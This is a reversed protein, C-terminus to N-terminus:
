EQVAKRAEEIIAPPTKGLRTLMATIQDATRPDIAMGTTKADAQFEANSLMDGFANRLAAVREQPVDPPMAFPRATDLAALWLEQIQLKTKDLAFESVLPVDPLEPNRRDGTQLLVRVKYETLWSRYRQLINSL